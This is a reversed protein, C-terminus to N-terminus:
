NYRDSNKHKQDDNGGKRKYFNFFSNTEAAAEDPDKSTIKIRHGILIVICQGMVDISKKYLKFIVCNEIYRM